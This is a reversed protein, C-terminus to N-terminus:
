PTNYPKSVPYIGQSTHPTHTHLLGHGGAFYMSTKIQHLQARFFFYLVVSTTQNTENRAADTQQSIHVPHLSTRLTCRVKLWLNCVFM